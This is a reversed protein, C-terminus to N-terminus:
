RRAVGGRGLKVGVGGCWIARMDAGRVHSSIHAATSCCHVASPRSCGSHGISHHLNWSRVPPHVRTGCTPTCRGQNTTRIPAPVTGNARPTGKPTVMGATLHPESKSTRSMTGGCENACQVSRGGCQPSTAIAQAWMDIHPYICAFTAFIDSINLLHKSMGWGSICTFIAYFHRFLYAFPM